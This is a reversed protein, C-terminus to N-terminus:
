SSLSSLPICCHRYHDNYCMHINIHLVNWLFSNKEINASSDKQGTVVPICSVFHQHLIQNVAPSTRVELMLTESWCQSCSRQEPLSASTALHDACRCSGDTHPLLDSPIQQHTAFKWATWSIYV